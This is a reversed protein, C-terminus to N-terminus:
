QITYNGLPIVSHREIIEVDLVIRSQTVSDNDINDFGIISLDNPIIFGNRRAGEMIGIAMIDASAFVVTIEGKQKNGLILM